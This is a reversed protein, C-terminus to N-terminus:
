GVGKIYSAVAYGFQFNGVDSIHVPDTGKAMTTALYGNTAASASPYGTSPDVAAGAHVVHQNNAVFNASEFARCLEQNWILANRQFRNRTQSIGYVAGFANQDAAGTPITLFLIRIGSVAARFAAVLTKLQAMATQAVVRASHDSQESAIDNTGLFIAVYDGSTLGMGSIFGPIDLSAGGNFLPSGASMFQSVTWGARGECALARSVSTSDNKNGTRAGRLALTMTDGDFLRVVEALWQGRAAATGATPDTLSDGIPLFRKTGSGNTSAVVTLTTTRRDLLKPGRSVTWTATYSNATGGKFILRNVDQQLTPGAGATGRILFDREPVTECAPTLLMQTFYTSLDNNGWGAVAYMLRPAILFPAQDTDIAQNIGVPGANQSPAVKSPDNQIIRCWPSYQTASNQWAVGGYCASSTSYRATPSAFAGAQTLLFGSPANHLVELWISTGAPVRKDLRYTLNHLRGPELSLGTLSAQALIAGSSSGDRVVLRSDTLPTASNPWCPVMITDAACTFTGIPGAWATFVDTSANYRWNCASIDVPTQSPVEQLLGFQFYVNQGTGLTGPTGWAWTSNESLTGGTIIGAVSGAYLSANSLLFRDTRGTIFEVFLATASNVVRDLRVWPFSTQLLAASVTARGEALITGSGDTERVRVWLRECRFDSNNPRLPIRIANFPTPVVGVPSAYGTAASNPFSNTLIGGTQAPPGSEWVFVPEASAARNIADGRAAFANLAEDGTKIGPVLVMGGGINRGLVSM